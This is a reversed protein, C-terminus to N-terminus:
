RLIRQQVPRFGRRSDRYSQSCCIMNLNDRGVPQVIEKLETQPWRRYKRLM